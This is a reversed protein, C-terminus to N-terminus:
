KTMSQSIALDLFLFFYGFNDNDDDEDDNEPYVIPPYPSYTHVIRYIKTTSGGERGERGGEHLGRIRRGRRYQDTMGLYIHIPHPLPDPDGEHGGVIQCKIKNGGGGRGESMNVAEGGGGGGETNLLYLLTPYM